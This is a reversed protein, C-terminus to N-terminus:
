SMLLATTVQFTIPLMPSALLVQLVGRNVVFMGQAEAGPPAYAHVRGKLSM